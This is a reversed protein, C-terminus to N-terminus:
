IVTVEIGKAGGTASKEPLGVEPTAGKVTANVSKDLFVGVEQFQDNPSSEGSFAVM